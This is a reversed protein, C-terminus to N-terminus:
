KYVITKDSLKSAITLAPEDEKTIKGAVKAKIGFDEARAVCHDADKQDVVLLMGQGGNWAEYLDEDSMGRWQACKEMIEPLEWLDPLDASLGKPILLDKGFKEKLAGGSLQIIAHLKVEPEFDDAYWGHLTNVYLDYLVSPEAAAKVDEVADPNSYWQDGYKMALAKRVSSIGNCRFGNEKLAIVVQGEAISEGTVMKDPHYAGVMSAGWNVKTPSDKIESDMCAGMQATEGKLIVANIDKVAKGLGDVLGKYTESVEDGWEGVTVVDLINIIGLPIGGYRTIDSSVAALIDYGLTHHMKAADALIGKTGIGDSSIETLCGDPLNKFRIPRPGRFQGESMDVVEMFKSNNYTDKSVKGAYSSFSAEEEVNVGDTYYVNKAM